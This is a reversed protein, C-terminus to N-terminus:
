RGKVQSKKPTVLNSVAKYVILTLIANVIGKVLNFPLIAPLLMPLIVDVSGYWFAVGITLNSVVAGATAALVGVLLGIIGSKFTRKRRYIAAAPWVFCLTAVINMLSGVWEGLILGHIVAAIAGVAIGAGPGFAFGCVMAPMLSPDYTLFTVGPILPLQVFSLLAAIACMLAMTVLQRTDWANTNSFELDDLDKPTTASM